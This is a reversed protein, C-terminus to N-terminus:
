ARANCSSLERAEVLSPFFRCAVVLSFGTRGCSLDQTDCSLGSAALFILFIFFQM